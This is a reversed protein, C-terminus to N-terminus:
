SRNICSNISPASNSSQTYIIHTHTYTHVWIHTWSLLLATICKKTYSLVQLFWWGCQRLQQIFKFSHVFSHIFLSQFVFLDAESLSFFLCLYLLFFFFVLQILYDMTTQYFTDPNLMCDPSRYFLPFSHYPRLALFLLDNTICAHRTKNYKM